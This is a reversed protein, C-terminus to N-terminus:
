NAARAERSRREIENALAQFDRVAARELVSQELRGLIPMGAGIRGVYDLRIGPGMAQVIFTSSLAPFSSAVARSRLGTPPFEEIEYRVRLPWLTADDWQEVVVHTGRREVVRSSRVGPIFDHYREYDTLVSWATAPDAAARARAVIVVGDDGRDIRVDVSPGAAPSAGACAMAFAPLLWLLHIPYRRM